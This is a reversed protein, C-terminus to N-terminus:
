IKFKSKKSDILFGKVTNITLYNFTKGFSLIKEIITPPITAADPRVDCAPNSNDLRRPNKAIISAAM